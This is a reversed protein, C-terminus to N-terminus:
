PTCGRAGLIEDWNEPLPEDPQGTMSYVYVATYHKTQALNVWQQNTAMLMFSPWKLGYLHDRCGDDIPIPLDKPFKTLSM